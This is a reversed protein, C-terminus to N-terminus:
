LAPEKESIDTEPFDRAISGAGTGHTMPLDRGVGPAKDTPTRNNRYSKIPTSLARALTWGDKLRAHLSNLKMGLENAWAVLSQTKGNHMIDGRKRAKHRQKNADLPSTVARELIWGLKLRNSIVSPAFGMLKAYEAITLCQGQVTYRIALASSSPNADADDIIKVASKRM